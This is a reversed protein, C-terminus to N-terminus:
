PQDIQSIYLYLSLFSLHLLVFTPDTLHMFCGIRSIQFLISHKLVRCALNGRNRSFFQLLTVTQHNVDFSALESVFQLSQNDLIM